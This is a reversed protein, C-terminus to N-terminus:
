DVGGLFGSGLKRFNPLLSPRALAEHGCAGGFEISVAKESLADVHKLDIGLGGACWYGILVQLLFSTLLLFYSILGIFVARGNRWEAEM